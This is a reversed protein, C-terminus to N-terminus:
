KHLLWSLLWQFFCKAIVLCITQQLFITCAMHVIELQLIENERLFQQCDFGWGVWYIGYLRFYQRNKFKATQDWAASIFINASKFKATTGYMYYAHVRVRLIICM